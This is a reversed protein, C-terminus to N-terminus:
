RCLIRSLMILAISLSVNSDELGGVRITGKDERAGRGAVARIIRGKVRVHMTKRLAGDELLKRLCIVSPLVVIGIRAHNVGVEEVPSKRATVCM